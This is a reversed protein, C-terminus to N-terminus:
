VVLPPHRVDLGAIAKALESRHQRAFMLHQRAALVDNVARLLPSAAYAAAAGALRHATATAEVSVDTAEQAALCARAQLALSIPDGRDAVAQVELVVDHLWSRAGRLRTDATALDGLGAPDDVLQGRRAARGGQVQQLLGDLAGRAIGLTVAALLPLYTTVIPIRWLPGGAWPDRGFVCVHDRDVVVDRATVHHSGTARLGVSSWTDEIELEDARVFVVPPPAPPGSRNGGAPTTGLGIWGSHLCNSTFPWRGSLGYGGDVPVLRGKPAFMTASPQDPDAFVVEAGARPLYGAFLNSGAGIVACWATSGDVTAISETVDILDLVSAELGGLERPVFMRNIGTSRLADTVPDPLRRARDATEANARVVPLAAEVAERVQATDGALHMAEGKLREATGRRRARSRARGPKFVSLVIAVMIAAVDWTAGVILGAGDGTGDLAADEAPSLVLGGVALVSVLLALKAIVWPYRLVGWRSGLGLIIGTALAVFSLPIGFVVSLMGLIEYSAHAEDAPLGGARLSIALFTASDGLLAVSAAIHVSLVINRWRRSLRRGRVDARETKAPDLDTAPRVATPAAM